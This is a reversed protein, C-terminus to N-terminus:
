KKALINRLVELQESIKQLENKIQILSAEEKQIEESTKDVIKKEQKLGSIIMQDGIFFSVFLGISLLVLVSVLLSIPGTLFPILDATMWVGRWFMVIAVGGILAYTFPHRSLAFRIKDELKDFFHIIKM